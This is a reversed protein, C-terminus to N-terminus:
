YVERLLMRGSKDVIIKDLREIILGDREDLVIKKVNKNKENVDNTENESTGIFNDLANEVKNEM